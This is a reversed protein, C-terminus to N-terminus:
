DLVTKNILPKKIGRYPNEDFFGGATNMWMRHRDISFLDFDPDICSRQGRHNPLQALQESIPPYPDPYTEELCIINGLSM